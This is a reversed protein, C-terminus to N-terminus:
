RCGCGVLGAAVRDLAAETTSTADVAVSNVILAFVLLRGSADDLYGALAATDDLTGTKARVNGAAAAAPVVLYRDDLTGSFGAVPLAALMSSLEPHHGGVVLDLVQTLASPYMRDSRSLGSGDLMALGVPDVSLKALVSRVAQAGGAFTAPQGTALAVQRALAEAVDNDSRGLMRQVLAALTPSRVSGLLPAGPTAKAPVAAGVVAVGDKTLLAAFESAAQAAPNESRAPKNPDPRGEDVELASVPAVDGENIYSPKWGPATAAGTFLTADYGLTVTRRGQKKLASATQTALDSLRAPAPFGPDAAGIAAPGALTPDGGGVIVISGAVAGQIVTTTFRRTPGLAELAAAATALKATSAPALGTTARQGLLIRGTAADAVVLGVTDGALARDGLLPTLRSTLGSATPQLTGETAPMLVPSAQAVTRQWWPTPPPTAGPSLKKATSASAKVARGGGIATRVAVVSVVLLCLVVVSFLLRRRRLVQQRRAGPWSAPRGTNANM